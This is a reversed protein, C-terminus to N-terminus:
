YIGRIHRRRRLQNAIARNRYAQFERYNRFRRARRKRQYIRAQRARRHQRKLAARRRLAKARRARRLKNLRRSPKSVRRNKFKRKSLVRPRVHPTPREVAALRALAMRRRQALDAIQANTLKRRQLKSPAPPLTEAADAGPMDPKMLPSPPWNPQAAATTKSPTEPRELERANAALVTAAAASKAQEKAASKAERATKTMRHSSIKASANEHLALAQKEPVVPAGLRYPEMSGFRTATVVQLRRQDDADATKAVSAPEAVSAAQIARTAPNASSSETISGTVINSFPAENADTAVVAVANEDTVSAIEASPRVFNKETELDRAQLEATELREKPQEVYAAPSLIEVLSRPAVAILRDATEKLAAVVTQTTSTKEVEVSAVAQTSAPRAVDDPELKLSTSQDPGRTKAVSAVIVMPKKTPLAIPHQGTVKKASAPGASKARATILLDAEDANPKDVREVVGDREPVEALAIKEVVSPPPSQVVRRSDVVTPWSKVRNSASTHASTFLSAYGYGAVAFVALVVAITSFRM